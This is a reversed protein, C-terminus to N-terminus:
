RNQTFASPVRVRDIHVATAHGTLGTHINAEVVMAPDWSLVKHLRRVIYGSLM